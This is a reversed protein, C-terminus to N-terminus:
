VGVLAAEKPKPKENKKDIGLQWDVAGEFNGYVTNDTVEYTGNLVYGDPYSFTLSGNKKFKITNGTDPGNGCWSGEEIKFGDFIGCGFLFLSSFTIFASLKLKM